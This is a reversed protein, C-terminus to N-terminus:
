SIGGRMLSIADMTTLGEIIVKIYQGSEPNSEQIKDLLGKYFEQGSVMWKFKSSEQRVSQRWYAYGEKQGLLLMSVACGSKVEKSSSVFSQRSHEDLLSTSGSAEEILSAFLDKNNPNKANLAQGMFTIWKLKRVTNVMGAFALPSTLPNVKPLSGALNNFYDLLNDLGQATLPSTPDSSKVGLANRLDQIFHNTYM